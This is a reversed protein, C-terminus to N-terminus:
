LTDKKEACPRKRAVGGWRDAWRETYFDYYSIGRRTRRRELAPLGAWIVSPLGIAPLYLPGLLLSQRTHGYEHALLTDGAGEPVFVFMGLSLGKRGRWRTVVAGRHRSHPCGLCTLYVLAGALTQLIGWTCQCLVYWVGVSEGGIYFTHEDYCITGRRALAFDIARESLCPYFAPMAQGVREYVLEFDYSTM